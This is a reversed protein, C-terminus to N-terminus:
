WGLTWDRRTSRVPFLARLTASGAVDGLGGTRIFPAAESAVFLISEKRRPQRPKGKPKANRKKTKTNM